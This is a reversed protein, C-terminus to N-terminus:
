RNFHTIIMGVDNKVSNDNDYIVSLTFWILSVVAIVVLTTNYIFSGNKM